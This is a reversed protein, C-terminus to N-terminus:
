WHREQGGGFDAVQNPLCSLLFAKRLALKSTTEATRLSADAVPLLTVAGGAPKTHSGERCVQVQPQGGQDQTLGHLWFDM